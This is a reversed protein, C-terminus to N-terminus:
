TQPTPFSNGVKERKAWFAPFNKTFYDCIKQILTNDRIDSAAKVNFFDDLLYLKERFYNKAEQREAESQIFNTSLLGEFYQDARKIFEHFYASLEYENLASLEQYKTESKATKQLTKEEIEAFHELNGCYYKDPLAIQLFGKAKKFNECRLSISKNEEVKAAQEEILSLTNIYTCFASTTEECAKKPTCFKTLFYFDELVFDDAKLNKVNNIMEIFFAKSVDILRSDKLITDVFLEIKSIRLKKAEETKDDFAILDKDRSKGKASKGQTKSTTM